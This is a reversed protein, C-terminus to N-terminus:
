NCLRLLDRFNNSWYTSDTSHLSCNQYYHIKPSCTGSNYAAVENVEYKGETNQVANFWDNQMCKETTHCRPFSQACANFCSTKRWIQESEANGHMGHDLTFANCFEQCYKEGMEKRLMSPVRSNENQDKHKTRFWEWNKYLWIKQFGELRRRMLCMFYPKIEENFQQVKCQTVQTQNGTCTRPTPAVCKCFTSKQAGVGTDRCQDYHHDGDSSSEHRYAPYMDYYVKYQAAFCDMYKTETRITQGDVICSTEDLYNWLKTKKQLKRLYDNIKIGMKIAIKRRNYNPHRDWFTSKQSYKYWESLQEETTTRNEPSYLQMTPTMIETQSEAVKDGVFVDFLPNIKGNHNCKSECFDIFHTLMRPTFNKGDKTTLSLLQEYIKKSFVSCYQSLADNKLTQIESSSLIEEINMTTDTNRLHKVTAKMFNLFAGDNAKKWLNTECHTRYGPVVDANASTTIPEMPLHKCNLIKWMNEHAADMKTPDGKTTMVPFPTGDAAVMQVANNEMCSTFHGQVWNCLKIPELKKDLRGESTIWKQVWSVTLIQAHCDHTSCHEMLDKMLLWPLTKLYYHELTHTNAEKTFDHSCFNANEYVGPARFRPTKFTKNFYTM